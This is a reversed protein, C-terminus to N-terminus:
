LELVVMGLTQELYVLVVAVVLIVSEVEKHLHELEQAAAELVQLQQLAV